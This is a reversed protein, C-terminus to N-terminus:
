RGRLERTGRGTRDRLLNRLTVGDQYGVKAAIEDIGDDSTQLLHVAREVRLDQVYQLPSRGVVGQLRRTLTRASAGVSRAAADLSFRQELHRRAWSEFREVMADSHALHDPIAYAAQTPRPDVILYRAALSALQPSRRRVLWLALDLHALAAGATVVRRSELVMRSDDLQVRPFRERFFPALWWTTTAARGDLLGAQGLVFTGTCAAGVLAGRGSWHRLLTGAEAIDPRALAAALTAPTKQGLAPVIVVDPRDAVSARELPVLLGQQTRVRRRVGVRRVEFRSGSRAGALEDATSLTDLVAALGLDFVGDLVVVSIRM